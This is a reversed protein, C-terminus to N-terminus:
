EPIVTFGLGRLTEVTSPAANRLVLRTNQAERRVPYNKRLLDFYKGREADPQQLVARLNRDDAPMDYIATMAKLLLQQPAVENGNFHLEPVPPAPLLRESTFSDGKVGLFRCLGEYLMVTGNVKGDLSYGAIHPTAIAVRELLEVDIQPENEWVDLVAAQLKGAKLYDKLAANKVVAGRSSNLLIADPRLASLNEERLLYHTADPGQKTLPVHLTVFDAQLAESLSVFRTDGTKRQLPPDNPLVKLGLARAKKEVKSGVNGVGIIGLSRGELTFGFREALLLMATVVYESVSNSNSGAASVFTIQRSALYAEDVHDTGITATGVFRVPTGELLSENVKTISRVLLVEADALDARSMARGSMCRVNGMKGFVQQVYPINEDALIKM